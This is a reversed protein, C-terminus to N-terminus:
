PGPVGLDRVLEEFAAVGVSAVHSLFFQRRLALLGLGLPPREADVAGPAVIRAILAVLGEDNAQLCRAFAFRDDFVLHLATNRHLVDLEVIEDQEARVACRGVHQRYHDVIVVHAHSVHDTPVIV